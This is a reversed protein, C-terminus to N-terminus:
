SEGQLVEEVRRKLPPKKTTERVTMAGRLAPFQPTAEQAHPKTMPRSAATEGAGGM